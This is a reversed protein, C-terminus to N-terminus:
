GLGQLMQLLANQNLGASFQQNQSSLGQGFQQNQLMAQLLGLQLGGSGLKDQLGLQGQSQQQRADIDRLGLLKQLELAQQQQSMTQGFQSGQQALQQGFQSSQQAMQQRQIEAGMDAIQKLSPAIGHFTCRFPAVNEQALFVFVPEKGTLSKVARQYFSAQYHYGMTAIQRSFAAPAANTTTKYDMIVDLAHALADPRAKLLTEGEQWIM